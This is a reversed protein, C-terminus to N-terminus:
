SRYLDHYNKWFKSNQFSYADWGIEALHETYGGFELKWSGNDIRSLKSISCERIVPIDSPDKAALLHFLIGSIVSGHSVLISTSEASENLTKALTVIREFYSAGSEPLSPTVKAQYDDNINVDELYDAKLSESATKKRRSEWLGPELNMPLELAESIPKATRVCRYFPSVLLEPDSGDEFQTEFFSAVAKAQREGLDSLPWKYDPSWERSKKTGHRVLWLTQEKSEPKDM